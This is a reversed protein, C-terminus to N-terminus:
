LLEQRSVIENPEFGCKDDQNYCRKLELEIQRRSFAAWGGRKVLGAPLDVIFASFRRHASNFPLR